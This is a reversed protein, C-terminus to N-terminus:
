AGAVGSGKMVGSRRMETHHELAQGLPSQAARDSMAISAELGAAQLSGLKLRLPKDSSGFHITLWLKSRKFSFDVRNVDEWGFFPHMGKVFPHGVPYVGQTFVEMQAHIVGEAEAQEWGKYRLYRQFLALATGALLAIAFTRRGRDLLLDLFDAASMTQFLLDLLPNAVAIFLFSATWSAIEFGLHQTWDGEAWDPRYSRVVQLSEGWAPNTWSRLGAEEGRV